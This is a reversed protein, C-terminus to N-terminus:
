RKCKKLFSALGEENLKKNKDLEDRSFTADVMGMEKKYMTEVEKIEEDSFKGCRKQEYKMAELINRGENDRITSDFGYKLLTKYVAAINLVCKDNCYIASHLMTDGDEDRHNIKLKCTLSSDSSADICGNIFATSYGAYMANQIFNYRSEDTKNINCVNYHILTKLAAFCSLENHEEDTLGLLFNDKKMGFKPLENLLVKINTPLDYGMKALIIDVKSESNKKSTLRDIESNYLNEVERIEKDSFKNCRKKEFKMAEVIDRRSNDKIRSDFGANILAKYIELINGKFDDAYIATHLMTDGDSDQHNVALGHSASLNILKVIFDSSYCEYMANQIFNYNFSDKANISCHNFDLLSEIALLCSREDYREDTFVFLTDVIKVNYRNFERVIKSVNEEKNSNMYSLLQQVKQKTIM